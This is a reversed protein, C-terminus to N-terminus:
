RAISPLYIKYGSVVPTATAVPEGAVQIKTTGSAYGSLAVISAQGNDNGATFTSVTKGDVGTIGSAPNLEGLSSFFTVNEDKVPQGAADLITAIITAQEGPKRRDASTEVTVANTSADTQLMNRIEVFATATVGNVEATIIAQGQNNNATYIATATGSGDATLTVPNVTGASTIFNVIAGTVPQGNADRVQVSLATSASPLLVPKPIRLLVTTVSSGMMGSLSIISKNGFAPLLGLGVWLSVITFGLGRVFKATRVKVM